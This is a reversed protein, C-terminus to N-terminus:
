ETHIHIRAAAQAALDTAATTDPAHVIVCGARDHSSRVEHIQSGPSVSLNVAVADTGEGLGGSGEGRRSV